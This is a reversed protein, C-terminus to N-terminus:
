FGLGGSAMDAGEEFLDGGFAEGDTFALGPTRVSLVGPHMRANFGRQCDQSTTALEDNMM